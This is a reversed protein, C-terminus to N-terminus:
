TCMCVCARTIAGIPSITSLCKRHQADHTKVSRTHALACHAYCSTANRNPPAPRRAWPSM